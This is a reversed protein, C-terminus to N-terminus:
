GPFYGNRGAHASGSPSAAAAPPTLVGPSGNGYQTRYYQQQQQYYAGAGYQQQQQQQHQQQFEFSTIQSSPLNIHMQQHQQNQNQRYMNSNSVPLAQANKLLNASSSTSISGDSKKSNLNSLQMSNNSTIGHNSNAGTSVSALGSSNDQNASSMNHTSGNKGKFKANLSAFTMMIVFWFCIDGGLNYLWFGAHSAVGVVYNQVILSTGLIVWGGIVAIALMTLKTNMHNRSSDKPTGKRARTHSLIRVAYYTYGVIALALNGAVIAAVIKIANHINPLNFCVLVVLYTISAFIVVMSFMTVYPFYNRLIRIMWNEQISISKVIKAWALLMLSFAWYGLCFAGWHLTFTFSTDFPSYPFGIKLAYMAFVVYEALLAVTWLSLSTLLGWKLNFAFGEKMIVPYLLLFTLFIFFYFFLLFFADAQNRVSIFSLCSPPSPGFCKSNVSSVIEFSIMVGIIVLRIVSYYKV